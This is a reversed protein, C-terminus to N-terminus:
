RKIAILFLEKTTHKSTDFYSNYRFEIIKILIKRM